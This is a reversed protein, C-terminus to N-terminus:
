KKQEKWAEAIAADEYQRTWLDYYHGRAALLDEHRGQEIIKGDQVVLILDVSMTSFVCPIYFAKYKQIEGEYAPRIEEVTGLAAMQKALGAIGGMQAAAAEMQASMAWQGELEEPHEGLFAAIWEDADGPNGMIRKEQEAAATGVASLMMILALIISFCRTQRNLM